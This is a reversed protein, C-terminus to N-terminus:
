RSAPGVIVSRRSELAAVVAEIDDNEFDYDELTEEFLAIMEDFAEDDIELHAHVHRLTEDTYSAPGGMVYSIFKTQHDVLARMDVDDFYPAMLDSDLVKDYFHLVIKSITAFGGYREFITAM